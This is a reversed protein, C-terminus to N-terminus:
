KFLSKAALLYHKSSLYELCMFKKIKLHMILLDVISVFSMKKVEAYLQWYGKELGQVNSMASLNGKRCCVVPEKVFSYIKHQSYEIYFLLDEGHSVENTFAYRIAHDRRFMWTIGFFCRGTLRVLDQTPIGRFSPRFTNLVAGTQDDFVDVFGDVFSIENNSEFLSLRSSISTSTFYDDADLFCFFDGSMNNLALNRAASVGKNEQKFYKIREDDFSLIEDETCDRSGDNVILLEWNSYSQKIVSKIAETIHKEANYAPMIISVLVNM